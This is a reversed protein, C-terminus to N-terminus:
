ICTAHFSSISILGPPFSFPPFPKRRVRTEDERLSWVGDKQPLGLLESSSTHSSSFLSRHELELAPHPCILLCPFAISKLWASRASIVFDEVSLCGQGWAREQIIQPGCSDELVSPGLLTVPSWFLPLPPSSSWIFPLSVRPTPWWLPVWPWPADSLFSLWRCWSSDRILSLLLALLEWISSPYHWHGSPGLMAGLSGERGQM